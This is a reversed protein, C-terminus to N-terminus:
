REYKDDSTCSEQKEADTVNVVGMNSIRTDGISAQGHM